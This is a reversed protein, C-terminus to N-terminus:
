ILQAYEGQLLYRYQQKQVDRERKFIAAPLSLQKWSLKNKFVFSKYVKHMLLMRRHIDGSGQGIIKRLWYLIFRNHLGEFYLEVVQVPCNWM